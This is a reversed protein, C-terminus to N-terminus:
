QEARSPALAARRRRAGQRAADGADGRRTGFRAAAGDLAEEVRRWDADDDWLTSVEGLREARLKEARVGVLRVPLPRDVSAFLEIRPM